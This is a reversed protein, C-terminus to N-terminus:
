PGPPRGAADRLAALIAPEDYGKVARAGILTVPVTRLGLALLEDYARDDEDVNRAIFAVGLRSLLQKV